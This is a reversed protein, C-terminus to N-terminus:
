AAARGFPSQPRDASAQYAVTFDDLGALAAQADAVVFADFGARRLFHLQDRGVAGLARLEGTYGHRSRLLTAISHGRGDGALPFHVGIVPLDELDPVIEAVDDGPALWVGYRTGLEWERQILDERRAQWVALPVLVDGGPLRVDAPSENAAVRVVTWDDAVIARHRIVESTNAM